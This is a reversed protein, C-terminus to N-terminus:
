QIYVKMTLIGQPYIERLGLVENITILIITAAIQCNRGQYYIRGGNKQMQVMSLLLIM